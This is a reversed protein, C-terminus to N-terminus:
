MYGLGPPLWVLSHEPMGIYIYMGFAVHIHVTLLKDASMLEQYLVYRYM